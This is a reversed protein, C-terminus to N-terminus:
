DEVLKAEIRVARAKAALERFIEREDPSLASIDFTEANRNEIVLPNDPDGAVIKRDGYRKPDWKALLKLDYDAIAKDRAVDGTSEGGEEPGLGRLTKRGRNAISDWGLERARAIAFSLAPRKEAWMRVTQDSPMGPEDCILTLPDGRSLRDCIRSALEDSYLSPRGMKAPTLMESM